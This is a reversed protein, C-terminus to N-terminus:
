GSKELALSDPIVLFQHSDFVKILGDKGHVQDVPFNQLKLVTNLLSVTGLDDNKVLIRPEFAKGGSVTMGTEAQTVLRTNM